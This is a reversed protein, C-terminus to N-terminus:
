SWSAARAAPRGLGALVDITSPDAADVDDVVLVPWDTWRDRIAAVISREGPERDGDFLEPLAARFPHLPTVSQRRDCRLRLVASAGGDAALVSDVLTSKGIGAPGTVVVMCVRHRATEALADLEAAESERGVLGPLESANTRLVRVASPAADARTTWRSRRRRGRDGDRPRAPHRGAVRRRAVRDGTRLPEGAVGVLEAPGGVHSGAEVVVVGTDIGIRTRLELAVPEAPRTM